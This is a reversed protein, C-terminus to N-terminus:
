AAKKAKTKKAEKGNLMDTIAQIVPAPNDLKPLVETLQAVLQMAYDDLEAQTPETQGVINIVNSAPAETTTPAPSEPTAPTEPTAPAAVEAPSEPTTTAPTETTAAAPTAAAQATQAKANDIVAQKEAQRQAYEARSCGHDDWCELEDRYSKSKFITTLTDFGNKSEAIKGIIRCEEFTLSDYRSETFLKSEVLAFAKSAITANSISGKSVGSQRLIDNVKEGRPVHRAIVHLLKGLESFIRSVTRDREVFLAIRQGQEMQNIDAASLATIKAKTAM